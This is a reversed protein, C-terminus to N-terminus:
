TGSAIRFWFSSGRYLDDGVIEGFAGAMATPQERAMYHAAFLTEYRHSATLLAQLVYQETYGRKQYAPPYDYPIFIDHVHVTIDVPLTPIIQNFLRPIDGRGRAIHSSDIFVIAPALMVPLRAEEVRMRLITEAAGGVKARPEPDVVTIHCPLGLSTVAQKAVLTSFGGGIEVIMRPKIERIM